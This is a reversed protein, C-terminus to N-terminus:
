ASGAVCAGCPCGVVLEQVADDTAKWWLAPDQEAWGPRTTVVPYDRVSTALVQGRTDLALVKCASTGLDIGIFCTTM